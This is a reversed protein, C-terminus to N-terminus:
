KNKCYLDENKIRSVTSREIGTIQTVLRNPHGLELMAKATVLADKDYKFKYSKPFTRGVSEYLHKWRKGHRVLSVYRPHVGLEDSVEENTKGKLFLDYMLMVQSEELKSMLNDSGKKGENLGMEFAHIKNQSPTVIELNSLRYDGKNGNIHNVEMGEPIGGLFCEAMVRHYSGLRFHSPYGWKMGSLGGGFYKGTKTNLIFSDRRVLYDGEELWVGIDM